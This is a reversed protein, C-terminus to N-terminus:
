NPEQDMAAPIGKRAAEYAGIYEMVLTEDVGLTAKADNEFIEWLDGGARAEDPAGLDSGFDIMVLNEGDWRLDRMIGRELPRYGLRSLTGFIAASQKLTEGMNFAAADYIDDEIFEELIMANGRGWLKPVRIGHQGLHERRELSAQMKSEPFMTAAAKLIFHSSQGTNTRFTFSLGYTEGGIRTWKDQDCEIGTVTANPEILGMRSVASPFDAAEGMEVVEKVVSFSLDNLIGAPDSKSAIQEKTVTIFSNM